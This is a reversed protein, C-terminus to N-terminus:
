GNSKQQDFLAMFRSKEDREIQLEKYLSPFVINEYEEIKRMYEQVDPDM